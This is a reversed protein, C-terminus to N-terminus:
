CSKISQYLEIIKGSPSIGLDKKLLDLYSRFYQVGKSKNNTLLYLKLLLETVSEEYPNLAYAKLLVKESKDFWGEKIYLKSLEMMCEQFLEAITRRKSYAWQYDEQELYEGIYLLEMKELTKIDGNNKNGALDHLYEIDWEVAGLNLNYNSDINITQRDVGYSDL